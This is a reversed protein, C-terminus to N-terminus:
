GGAAPGCSSSLRAAFYAYDRRCRHSRGWALAKKENDDKATMFRTLTSSPVVAGVNSFVERGKLIDNLLDIRDPIADLMRILPAPMHALMKIAGVSASEGAIAIAKSKGLVAGFGALTALYTRQLDDFRAYGASRDPNGRNYAELAAVCQRHLELLKLEHLPVEFAIPYLRDRPIRRSGDVPIVMIPNKQNAAAITELAASAAKESSQIRVLRNLESVLDPAPEYTAAHIARYLVLLDNVTLQLLDNRRKFLRRLRLMAKLDVATTEATVESTAQPSQEILALDPGQFNFTLTHPWTQRPQAPPLAKLYVAWSLAENALIEALAAGWAGDFFIHSQDMVVTKGTDFLTLAHNGIGREAQRLEALSLQRSQRDCNILIPALRLM